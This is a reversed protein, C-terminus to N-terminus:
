CSPASGAGPDWCRRGRCSLPRCWTSPRGMPLAVDSARALAEAAWPSFVLISAETVVGRRRAECIGATVEPSFAFDDATVILAKM